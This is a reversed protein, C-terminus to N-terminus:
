NKYVEFRVQIRSKSKQVPKHNVNRHKSYASDLNISRRELVSYDYGESCEEDLIKMQNQKPNTHYTQRQDLVSETKLPDLHGYEFKSSMDICSYRKNGNFSQHSRKSIRKEFSEGSNNQKLMLNRRAAEEKNMLRIVEDQTNNVKVFIKKISKLLKRNINPYKLAIDTVQKRM